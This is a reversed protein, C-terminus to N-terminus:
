RCLQWYEEQLRSTIEGPSGKGIEFEDIEVVPMVETTTGTLFVEDAALLRQRSVSERSCKLGLEEAIELVARRTIGNLIYNTAPPTIVEGDEVIFVNASTGETIYGDRVLISEYAGAKKAKKKAMINPLLAVSKIYCRSWREDPLLIARVGRSFYEEPKPELERVYMIIEPELGDEYAHSRPAVGRSVQIYLYSHRDGSFCNMEELYDNVEEKIWGIDPMKFDLERGSRMLRQLHEELRFPSGNWIAVVEYIGDAFQFGRDEIDVAAESRQIIEGSRYVKDYM